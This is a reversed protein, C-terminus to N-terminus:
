RVGGSDPFAMLPRPSVCRPQWLLVPSGRAQFARSSKKLRILGIPFTRWTSAFM